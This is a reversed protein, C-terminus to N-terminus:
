AKNRLWSEFAAKDYNARKSLNELQSVPRLNELCNILAVDKIGHDLFAQLPFIHDLHWDENKVNDWNPHKTVHERLEQPGYGLMDSTHGVKQKGVAQLTSQLAKYCKKRFKDRINKEERDAIWLPHDPGSPRKRQPWNEGRPLNRKATKNFARVRELGCEHCYQQQHHFAAFSIEAERGCKCRYRHKHHVGKFEGDLFECNRESFISKVEDLSRNRGPGTKVCKGCRHGKTFTNWSANGINGCSCVYLLPDMVGTYESLLECEQSKFYKAAEETTRKLKAM